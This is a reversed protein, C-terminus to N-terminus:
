CCKLRALSTTKGSAVVEIKQGAAISILSIAFLALIVSKM